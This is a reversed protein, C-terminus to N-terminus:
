LKVSRHKLPTSLWTQHMVDIVKRLLHCKVRIDKLGSFYTPINHDQLYFLYKMMLNVDHTPAHSLKIM